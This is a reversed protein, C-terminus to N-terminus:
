LLKEKNEGIKGSISKKLPGISFKPKDLHIPAFTSKQKKLQQFKM